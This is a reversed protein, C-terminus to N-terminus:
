RDPPVALTQHLPMSDRNGVSRCMRKEENQLNLLLVPNLSALCFTPIKTKTPGTSHFLLNSTSTQTPCTSHFLLDDTL